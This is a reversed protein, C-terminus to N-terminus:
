RLNGAQGAKMVSRFSHRAWTRERCIATSPRTPVPSSVTRRATCRILISASLPSTVSQFVGIGSHMKTIDNYARWTQLHLPSQAYALLGATNRFYMVSFIANGSSCRSNMCSTTGTRRDALLLRSLASKGLFGYKDHELELQEIM